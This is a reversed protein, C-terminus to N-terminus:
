PMPAMPQEHWTRAPEQLMPDLMRQMAMIHSCSGGITHAAATHCTCTWEGGDLAVEYDDHGGHFTATIRGLEVRDPEQAYRNAKEIRSILSSHM